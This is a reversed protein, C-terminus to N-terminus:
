EQSSISGDSSILKYSYGVTILDVDLCFIQFRIESNQALSQSHQNFLTFTVDIEHSKHVGVKADFTNLM